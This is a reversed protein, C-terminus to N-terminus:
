VSSQVRYRVRQKEKNQYPVDGEVIVENNMDSDNYQQLKEDPVDASYIYGTASGNFPKIGHVNIGVTIRDKAAREEPSMKWVDYSFNSNEIRHGLQKELRDLIKQKNIIFCAALVKDPTLFAKGDANHSAKTVSGSLVPIDEPSGHYLLKAKKELVVQYKDSYVPTDAVATHETNLKKEDLYKKIYPMTRALFEKYGEDTFYSRDVATYNIAPKPLWSSEQLFQKWKEPPLQEKLAQYVGTDGYTVRHYKNRLLELVAIRKYQRLLAKQEATLEDYYPHDKLDKLDLRNNVTYGIGWPTEVSDGKKYKSYDDSVRTTIIRDQKSITPIEEEPFSIDTYKM